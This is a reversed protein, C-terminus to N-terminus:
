GVTTLHCSCSVQTVPAPESTRKGAKAKAFLRKELGALRILRRMPPRMGTFNLDLGLQHAYDRARVMVALGDIDLFRTGSLDIATEKRRASCLSLYEHTREWVLSVNAWTIEGRWVLPLTWDIASEVVPQSAEDRLTELFQRAESLDKAVLLDVGMFRLARLVKKQPAVLVLHHGELRLQNELRKLLAVGTSDICGVSNMEALCDRGRVGAWIRAGRGVAAKDLREALQLRLADPDDSVLASIRSTRRRGSFGSSGQCHWWQASAGLGLEVFDRAYRRFLRRPEQILRYFWEVGSRRMWDPARKVRGALFDITAGVGIMVPAGVKKCNMAMWKEAKPCGFSVFVIDPDAARIRTAIDDHDMDLLSQFPPSYHGAIILNPYQKQLRAVAEAAVQPQGGLFFIRYGKEAAREILLPTLDSGAVREPLPNGFLRSLWVIPTGDCVVLSAANLVRRLEIDHRAQVLFDVNATAVYHSDGSEIMVELRDLAADFTLPEFPVGLIDIPPAFRTPTSPQPFVSPPPATKRPPSAGLSPQAVAPQLDLVGTWRAFLECAGAVHETIWMATVSICTPQM